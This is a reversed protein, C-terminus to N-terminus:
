KTLPKTQHLYCAALMAEIYDLAGLWTLKIHKAAVMDYPMDPDDRVDKAIEFALQSDHKILHNYALKCFYLIM